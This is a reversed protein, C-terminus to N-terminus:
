GALGCSAHDQYVRDASTFKDINVRAAQYAKLWTQWAHHPDIRGAERAAMARLHADWDRVAGGAASLVADTQRSVDRCTAVAAAAEPVVEDVPTGLCKGRAKQYETTTARFRAVGPAGRARTQAWIRKTQAETNRGAVLDVMAQVHGHWDTIARRAQAVAGDGREVADACAQVAPPMLASAEFTPTSVVTSRTPKASPGPSRRIEAVVFWGATLLGLVCLLAVVVAPRVASRRQRRRRAM